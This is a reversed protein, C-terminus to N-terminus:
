DRGKRRKHGDSLAMRRVLRYSRYHRSSATTTVVVGAAAATKGRDIDHDDKMGNRSPKMMM